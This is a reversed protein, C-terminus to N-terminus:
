AGEDIAERVEAIFRYGRKSITEIYHPADRSDGLARRLISIQQVLNNQAIFSDPWVADLLADKEIIRGRNEILTLLLDFGKLTLPIPEGNRKLERDKLDICYDGFEYFRRARRSMTRMM